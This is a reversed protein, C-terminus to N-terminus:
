FAYRVGVKIGFSGFSYLTELEQRPKSDDQGDSSNYNISDVYETEKQATTLDALMDVGDITRKTLKGKTPSYSLNIMNLEGFLSMKENLYYNTGIAASLGLAFVAM